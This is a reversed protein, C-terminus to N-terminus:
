ALVRLRLSPNGERPAKADQRAFGCGADPDLQGTAKKKRTPPTPRLSAPSEPLGSDIEVCSFLLSPTILLPLAIVRRLKTLVAAAMAALPGYMMVDHARPGATQEYWFDAIQLESSPACFRALTLLCAMTAWSIEERDEPMADNWFADLGLRRWLALALYVNGFQRLREVRVRSVDVTARQPVDPESPRLFDRQHAKGDLIRGIEDWGVRAEEDRGPLKGLAAVVRQRPGRATRVSEVLTWTEYVEGRYRRDHRRLFM